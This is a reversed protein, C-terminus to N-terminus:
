RQAMGGGLSESGDDDFTKIEYYDMPGPLKEIKWDFLKEYFTKARDIDEVGINFHVITSM